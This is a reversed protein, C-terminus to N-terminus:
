TSLRDNEKEIETSSVEADHEVKQSRKQKKIRNM